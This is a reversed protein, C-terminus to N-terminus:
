HPSMKKYLRNMPHYLHPTCQTWTSLFDNTSPRVFTELGAVNLRRTNIFNFVVKLRPGDLCSNSAQHRMSLTPIRIGIIQIIILYAYMNTIIQIMSYLFVM